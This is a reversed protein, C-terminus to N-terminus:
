ASFDLIAGKVEQAANIQKIKSPADKKLPTSNTVVVEKIPAKDLREYAPGNFLGHTAFVYIDKAGNDKLMKAAEAITGATDIIDDYIICNKGKVDGSLTVAKAENHKERKKEISVTEAGIANALAEARKIGGGDPSVVVSDKDTGNEKIYRAVAPLSSINEIQTSNEAFGEISPNHLDLTIIGNVGSTELLQMNLKASVPELNNGIRRDQRAYPFNPLIAYVNKAGARRAADAKLYTEFLNDNVENSSPAMIFVDKNRVLENIKVYTEGNAFKKVTTDTPKIGLSEITSTELNSPDSSPLIRIDEKGHFSVMPNKFFSKGTSQIPNIHM